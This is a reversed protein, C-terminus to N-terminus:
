GNKQHNRRPRQGDKDGVPNVSPMHRRRQQTERGKAHETRQQDAGAERQQKVGEGAEGKLAQPCRRGDRRWLMQHDAPQIAVHAIGHVHRNRRQDEALSQEEAADLHELVTYRNKNSEM